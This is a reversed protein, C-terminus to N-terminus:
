YFQQNITKAYCSKVLNATEVGGVLRAEKQAQSLPSECQLAHLFVASNTMEEAQPTQPDVLLLLLLKVLDRDKM